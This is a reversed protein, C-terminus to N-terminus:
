WVNIFINISFHIQSKPQKLQWLQLCSEFATLLISLKQPKYFIEVVQKPLLIHHCNIEAKLARFCPIATLATSLKKCLQRCRTAATLATMVTSLKCFSDFSDVLQLLQWLHQCSLVAALLHVLQYKITRITTPWLLWRRPGYHRQCHKSKLDFM